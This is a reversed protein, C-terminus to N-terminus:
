QSAINLVVTVNGAYQGLQVDKGYQEEGFGYM